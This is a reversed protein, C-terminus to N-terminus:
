KNGICLGRLRLPPTDRRALSAWLSGVTWPGGHKLFGEQSCVGQVRRGWAVGGVGKSSVQLAAEGKFGLRICQGGAGGTLWGLARVKHREM